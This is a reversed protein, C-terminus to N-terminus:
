TRSNIVIASTHQRITQYAAETVKSLEAPVHKIVTHMIDIQSAVQQGDHETFKSRIQNKETTELDTLLEGEPLSTGVHELFLKRFPDLIDALSSAPIWSNGRQIHLTVGDDDPSIGVGLSYAPGISVVQEKPGGKFYLMHLNELNGLNDLGFLYWLGMKPRLGFRVLDEPVETEIIERVLELRPAYEILLARLETPAPSRVLSASSAM